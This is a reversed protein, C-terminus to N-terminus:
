SLPQAIAALNQWIPHPEASIEALPGAGNRNLAVADPTQAKLFFPLSHNAGFLCCHIASFMLLFQLVWLVFRGVLYAKGRVM